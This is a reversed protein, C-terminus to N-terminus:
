FTATATYTLTTSYGGITTGSAINAIYSVTVTSSSVTSTKSVLTEGSLFRFKDMTGYGSGITFTDGSISTGVNPSTNDMVNLGFGETGVASTDGGAFVYANIDGGGGLKMLTTGAVTVACGSPNNTAISFTSTGTGTTGTTLTGLDVSNGTVSFTITPPVISYVEVQNSSSTIAVAILAPSYGSSNCSLIITYAGASSPNYQTTDNYNVIVYQGSTPYHSSTTPATLTLYVNNTGTFVAGWTEASPSSSTTSYTSETGTTGNTVTIDSAAIDNFTFGSPFEIEITDTSIMTGSIMFKISHTSAASTMSSSMSNSANTIAAYAVKPFQSVLLTCISIVLLTSLVSNLKKKFM